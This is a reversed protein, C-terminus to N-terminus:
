DGIPTRETKVSDYNFDPSRIPNEEAANIKSRTVVPASAQDLRERIETLAKAMNIMMTELRDLRAEDPSPQIPEDKKNFEEELATMARETEIEMAREEPSVPAVHMGEAKRQAAQIREIHARAEKIQQEVGDRKGAEAFVRQMTESQERLPKTPTCVICSPKPPYIGHWVEPLYM